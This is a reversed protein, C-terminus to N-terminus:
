SADKPLPDELALGAKARDSAAKRAGLYTRLILGGIMLFGLGYSAWIYAANKDFEPLLDM